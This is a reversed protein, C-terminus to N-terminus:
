ADVTGNALPAPEFSVLAERFILSVKDIPGHRHKAVIIEAINKPYPKDPSRRDWEEETTYMDERHVPFGRHFPFGLWLGPAPHLKQNQRSRLWCLM